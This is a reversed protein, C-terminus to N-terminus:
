CLSKYIVFWFFIFSFYKQEIDLEKKVLSNRINLVIETDM